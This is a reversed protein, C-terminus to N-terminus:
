GMNATFLAYFRGIATVNASNCLYKKQEYFHLGEM